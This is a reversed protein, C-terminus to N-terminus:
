KRVQPLWSFRDGPGDKTGDSCGCGWGSSVPVRPAKPRKTRLLPTIPRIVAAYRRNWALQPTAPVKPGDFIGPAHMEIGVGGKDHGIESPRVDPAHRRVSIEQTMKAQASM